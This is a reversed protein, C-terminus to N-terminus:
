SNTSIRFCSPLTIPRPFLDLADSPIPRVPRPRFRAPIPVGAARSRFGASEAGGVLLGSGSQQKFPETEASIAYRRQVGDVGFCAAVTLSRNCSNKLLRKRRSTGPGGRQYGSNQGAIDSTYMYVTKTGAFGKKFSVSVHVTLNNGLWCGLRKWIMCQSNQLKLRVGAWRNAVPMAIGPQSTTARWCCITPAAIWYFWCAHTGDFTSNILASGGNLNAFGGSVLLRFRLQTGLRDVVFSEGLSGLGTQTQV